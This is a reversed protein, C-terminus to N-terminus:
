SNRVVLQSPDCGLCIGYDKYESDSRTKNDKQSEESSEHQAFSSSEFIGADCKSHYTCGGEKQDVM